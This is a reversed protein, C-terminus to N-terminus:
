EVAGDDNVIEVAQCPCCEKCLGCSSCLEPNITWAGYQSIAEVPCVDACLGCASCKAKIIQYM